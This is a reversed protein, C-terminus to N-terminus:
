REIRWTTAIAAGRYNMQTASEQAGEHLNSAAGRRQASDAIILKQQSASQEGHRRARLLDPENELSLGAELERRIPQIGRREQPSAEKNSREEMPIRLQASSGEGKLFFRIKLREDITVEIKVKCLTEPPVGHSGIRGFGSAM